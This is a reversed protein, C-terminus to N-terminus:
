PIGAAAGTSFPDTLDPSNNVATQQATTPATVQPQGLTVTGAGSPTQTNSFQASNILMIETLVLEAVILSVGNRSSRKLSYRTVNRNLYSKEPTVVDYLLMSALIADLANLFTRRSADNVGQALVVRDIGPEEVKDYSMFGSPAGASDSELYYNPVYYEKQIEVSVCSEAVLAITGDTNYIGWQRPPPPSPVGAM